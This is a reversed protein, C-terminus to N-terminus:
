QGDIMDDNRKEGEKGPDSHERRRIEIERNVGADLRCGSMPRQPLSRHLQHLRHPDAETYLPPRFSRLPRGVHLNATGVHRPSLVWHFGDAIPAPRPNVPMQNPNPSLNHNNPPNYKKRITKTKM